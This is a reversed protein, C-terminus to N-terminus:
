WPIRRGAVDFYHAAQLQGSVGVGVPSHYPRDFSSRTSFTSVFVSRKPDVKCHTPNARGTSGGRSEPRSQMSTTLRSTSTASLSSLSLSQTPLEAYSTSVSARGFAGASPPDFCDFRSGLARNSRVTRSTLAVGRDVKRVRSPRAACLRHIRLKM